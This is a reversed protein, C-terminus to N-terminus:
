LYGNYGGQREKGYPHDPLKHLLAAFLKAVIEFEGHDAFLVAAWTVSTAGAIYRASFCM